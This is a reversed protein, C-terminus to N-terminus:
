SFVTELIQLSKPKRFGSLHLEFYGIIVQLVLQRETKSYSIVDLSDFNTNLLKKFQHLTNGSIMHRDNVADSFGGDFLSFGQKKDDSLDPYFGLFRTFNLLFLLHFNAVRDNLDLWILATEIYEFLDSNEEEEQIANSLVESLFLVVSQKVIDNYITKYPFSVQVEKISNLNGKANHNVVMNLQTLPQFYAIKLGGKKAKLIGRILYSKLGEDQTYCKVILSSDNYKLSSLVIAKTTIVSM